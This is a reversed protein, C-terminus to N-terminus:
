TIIVSSRSYRFINALNVQVEWLQVSVKEPIHVAENDLQFRYNEAVHSWIYLDMVMGWFIYLCNHLLFLFLVGALALIRNEFSITGLIEPIESINQMEVEKM